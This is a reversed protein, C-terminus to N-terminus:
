TFRIQFNLKFYFGTSKGVEKATLIRGFDARHSSSDPFDIKTHNLLYDQFDNWNYIHFCVLEGDKKVAIYGGTASFNGTWLKGAKMGLAADILFRKIKYTYFNPNLRINFNCPNEKNLYETLELLKSPGSLSKFLLLHSLIEPLRSDILELNTRFVESHMDEFQLEYGHETLWKLRLGYTELENVQQASAEDLEPLIRYILNSNKSANFFTQNRVIDKKM